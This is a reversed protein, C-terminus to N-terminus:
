RVSGSSEVSFYKILHVSSICYITFTYYTLKSQVLISYRQDEEVEHPEEKTGSM